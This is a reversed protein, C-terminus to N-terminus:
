GYHPVTICTADVTICTMCVVHLTLMNSLLDGFCMDCCADFCLGVCIDLCVGFLGTCRSTHM